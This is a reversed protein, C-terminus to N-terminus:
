TSNIRTSVKDDLRTHITHWAGDNILTSIHLKVKNAWGEIVLQLHGKVLQIAMFSMPQLESIKALPEIPGLYLLLADEQQTLLRLSITSPFCPPISPLWTWGSGTFTRSLVKCRNGWSGGPCICRNKYYFLHNFPLM